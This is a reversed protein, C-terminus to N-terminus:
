TKKHTPHTRIKVNQQVVTPLLAKLHSVSFAFVIKLVNVGRFGKLQVSDDVTTGENEARSVKLRAEKRCGLVTCM